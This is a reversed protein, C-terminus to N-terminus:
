ENSIYNLTFQDQLNWSLWSTNKQQEIFQEKKHKFQKNLNSYSRQLSKQQLIRENQDIIPIVENGMSLLYQIDLNKVPTHTINYNAIAKDWNFLSILILITYVSYTNVKLLYFASKKKNVKLYLSIVGILVAFLFFVIGLRKHALGFSNIYHFNRLAVSITLIATQIIWTKAFLLLYKRYPGFNQNARFYYIIIGISLIISAVLWYTAEHVYQSLEYASKPTFDFWVWRIDIINIILLLINILIMLIAGSIFESKLGITSFKFDHKIRKRSITDSANKERQIFYQNKGQFIIYCFISIGLLYFLVMPLSFQKFFLIFVNGLNDTLRYSLDEFIPNAQVFISTFILAIVIPAASLRVYRLVLKSRNLSKGKLSVNKFFAEITVPFNVIAHPLLHVLAKFDNYKVASVLMFISIFATFIGTQSHLFLVCLTSVFSGLSLLRVIKRQFERKYNIFLLGIVITIFFLLNIGINENWFLLTFILGGITVISNQITSKM